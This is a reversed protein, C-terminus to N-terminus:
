KRECLVHCYSGLGQFIGENTEECDDLELKQAQAYKFWKLNYVEKLQQIKKFQEEIPLLDTGHLEMFMIQINKNELFQNWVIWEYGEIDVKLIHILEGCVDNITKTNVYTRESTSKPEGVIIGGCPSNNTHECWTFSMEAIGIENTIACCDTTWINKDYGLSDRLEETKKINYDFPDVSVLLSPNLIDFLKKSEYGINCGLDLVVPKNIKRSMRYFEAM